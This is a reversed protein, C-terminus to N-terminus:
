KRNSIMSGNGAVDFLPLRRYDIGGIGRSPYWVFNIAINWAEAANAGLNRAEDPILYTFEPELSWTGSLPIKLDSGIFGDSEGTFGVYVRCLGGGLRHLRAEYFATYWDNTEWAEIGPIVEDTSASAAFQMGFSSGNPVAWSLEGRLQGLDLGIDWNDHLYDFVIGGQWGCEARRFFGTTLFYQRRTETTFNAGDLSSQVARFGIQTNMCLPAFVWPSGWNIGQQFGFSGDQGRNFPGTFGDVGLWMSLTDIWCRMQCARCDNCGPCSGDGLDCGNPGCSFGGDQSSFYPADTGVGPPRVAPDMISEAPSGLPTSPPPPPADSTASQGLNQSTLGATGNTANVNTANVNKRKLISAAIRDLRRVTGSGARRYATDQGFAPLAWTTLVVLHLTLLGRLRDM